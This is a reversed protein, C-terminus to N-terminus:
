GGDRSLAKVAPQAQRLGLHHPRHPHPRSLSRSRPHDGLMRFPGDEVTPAPVHRLGSRVAADHGPRRGEPSAAMWGNKASGYLIPFDLQEDTADLAAFLDFVENVV